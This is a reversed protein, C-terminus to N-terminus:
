VAKQAFTVGPLLLTSNAAKARALKNQDVTIYGHLNGDKAAAALFAPLDLSAVTWRMQIKVGAAKPAAVAIVAPAVAAAQERYKEQVEPTKRSEALKNLREQEKRAKEDEIAQLRQREKEAKANEVQQWEIIRGKVTRCHQELPKSFLGVFGTWKRHLTFIASVREKLADDVTKADAKMEDIVRAASAAESENTVKVVEAFNAYEVLRGAIPKLTEVLELRDKDTVALGGTQEVVLEFEVLEKAKPEAKIAKM